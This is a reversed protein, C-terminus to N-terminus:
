PNLDGSACVLQLGERQKIHAQIVADPLTTLPIQQSNQPPVSSLPSGMCIGTKEVLYGFACGEPLRQVAQAGECQVGDPHLDAGAELTAAM